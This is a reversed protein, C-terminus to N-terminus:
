AFFRYCFSVTLFLDDYGLVFKCNSIDANSALHQVISKAQSLASHQSLILYFSRM